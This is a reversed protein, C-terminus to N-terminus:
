NLNQLSFGQSKQMYCKVVKIYGTIIACRQQTETQLLAMTLTYIYINKNSNFGSIVSLSVFL